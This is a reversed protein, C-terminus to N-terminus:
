PTGAGRRAPRPNMTRQIDAIFRRGTEPDMFSAVEHIHRVMAQRCDHCISERLTELADLDSKGPPHASVESLFHHNVDELEHCRRACDRFYRRHAEAVKAFTADDLHYEKQLWALGLDSGERGPALYMTDHVLRFGGYALLVLAALLAM